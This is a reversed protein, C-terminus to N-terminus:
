AFLENYKKDIMKRGIKYHPSVIISLCWQQIKYSAMHERYKRNIFEEKEKTFPNQSIGHWDWPKEPNNKIINININPNFSVWNWKWPKKPNDRINQMTINPNRSIESWDWHKDPHELIIDITINPNRSISSWNWPKDPNNQIMEITINPNMSIWM